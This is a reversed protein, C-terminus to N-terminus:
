SEEKQELAQAYNAYAHQTSCGNFLTKTYIDDDLKLYCVGTISSTKRKLDQIWDAAFTRMLHCGKTTHGPRDEFFRLAVFQRHCFWSDPDCPKQTVVCYHKLNAPLPIPKFAKIAEFATKAQKASKGIYKDAEHEKGEKKYYCEIIKSGYPLVFIYNEVVCKESM